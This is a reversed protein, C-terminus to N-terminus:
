SPWGAEIDYAAGPMMADLLEAERDFCAQVHTRVAQAGREAARDLMSQLEEPTLTTNGM